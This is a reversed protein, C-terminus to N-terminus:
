SLGAARPGTRFFSPLIAKPFRQVLVSSSVAFAPLAFVEPRAAGTLRREAAFLPAMAKDNEKEQAKGNAKGM